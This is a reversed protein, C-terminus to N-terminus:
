SISTTPATVHVNQGIAVEDGEDIGEICFLVVPVKEGVEAQEHIRRASIIVEDPLGALYCSSSNSPRIKRTKPTERERKVM